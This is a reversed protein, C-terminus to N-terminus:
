QKDAAGEVYRVCDLARLRALFTSLPIEMGDIRASVSVPAVAGSPINQNVTLINAGCDFFAGVFSALAGPRDTLTAHVTLISGGPGSTYPMVADKYKYFASRSVGAMAAAEVASGATGDRLLRKAQAVRLFVDPLADTRVLLYEDSMIKVKQYKGCLLFVALM